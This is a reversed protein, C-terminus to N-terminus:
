KIRAAYGAKKIYAVANRPTIRDLAEGIAFYLATLSRAGRKRLLTKIKSIAREIPNFDPSYPPLRLVHAGAAEILADVRPSKHAPLNDLIVWQGRKLKPALCQAVFGVFIEEDVATDFTGAALIGQRDMVAITSLVKWHGHPTHCVVRQGVPGRAFLRTMNSTAGFEDLFVLDKLKVHALAKFWV